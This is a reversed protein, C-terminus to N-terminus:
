VGATKKQPAAGPIAQWNAAMIKKFSKLATDELEGLEDAAMILERLPMLARQDRLVGLAAAAGARVLDNEKKDQMVEILAPVAKKDNLKGLSTVAYIRVNVLEDKLLSIKWFRNKCVIDELREMLIFQLRIGDEDWREGEVETVECLRGEADLVARLERASILRCIYPTQESLLYQLRVTDWFNESTMVHKEFGIVKLVYKSEPREFSNMEYVSSFGGTGLLCLKDNMKVLEYGPFICGEADLICLIEEVKDKELFM